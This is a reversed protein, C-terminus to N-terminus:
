FETKFTKSILLLNNICNLIPYLVKVLLQLDNGCKSFFKKKLLHEKIFYKLYNVNFNPNYDM